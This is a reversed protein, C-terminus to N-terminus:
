HFLCPTQPLHIGLSVNWEVGWFGRMWFAWITPNIFSSKLISREKKQQVCLLAAKNPFSNFVAPITEVVVQTSSTKEQSKDYLRYPLVRYGTEDGLKYMEEKSLTGDSKSAKDKVPDRFIPLPNSGKVNTGLIQLTALYTKM